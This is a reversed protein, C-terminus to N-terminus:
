ERKFRHWYPLFGDELHEEKGIENAREIFNEIPMYTNGMGLPMDYDTYHVSYHVICNNEESFYMYDDTAYFMENGYIKHGSLVYDILMQSTKFFGMKEKHKIRQKKAEESLLRENEEYEALDTPSMYQKAGVNKCLQEFNRQSKESIKFEM